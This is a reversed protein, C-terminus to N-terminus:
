VFHDSDRAPDRDIFDSDEYPQFATPFSNGCAAYGVLHMDLEADKETLEGDCVPCRKM